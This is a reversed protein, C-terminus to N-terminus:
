LLKTEKPPCYDINEKVNNLIYIPFNKKLTNILFFLCIHNFSAKSVSVKVLM